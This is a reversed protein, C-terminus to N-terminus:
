EGPATLGLEANREVLNAPSIALEVTDGDIVLDHRIIGASDFWLTAQAVPGSNASVEYTFPTALVPEALVPLRRSDGVAASVSLEAPEGDCAATTTQTTPQEDDGIAVSGGSCSLISGDSLVPVILEIPVRTVGDRDTTIVFEVPDVSGAGARFVQRRVTLTTGGGALLEQAAARDRIQLTTAVAPNASDVFVADSFPLHGTVSRQPQEDDISVPATTSVPGPDTARPPAEDGGMAVLAATFAAAICTAAVAVAFAVRRRRVDAGDPVSSLDEYAHLAEVPSSAVPQELADLMRARVRAAAAPGLPVRREGDQLERRVDHDTM